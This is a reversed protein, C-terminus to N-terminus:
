VFQGPDRTESGVAQFLVKLYSLLQDNHHSNVNTYFFLQSMKSGGQQDWVGWVKHKYKGFTPLYRGM